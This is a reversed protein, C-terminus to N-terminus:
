NVFRYKIVAWLIKFGDRWNIKKGETYDRPYYRIPLHTVRMGCKMIKCVLEHEYAFDHSRVTVSVVARRTFVKYGGTYEPITAGYLVNSAFTIAFNGLFYLFSWVHATTKTPTRIGVLADATGAILPAILKPYDAPDYELDADQILLIDGSAANFGARVAAGKGPRSEQIVRISPISNAIAFTDDTSNNDVVIIEKEHPSIDVAQVRSVIERLTSAENYAPIVISVKPM